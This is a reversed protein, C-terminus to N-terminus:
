NIKSYFSLKIFDYSVVLEAIGNLILVVTFQVIRVGLVPGELGYSCVLSRDLWRIGVVFPRGVIDQDM